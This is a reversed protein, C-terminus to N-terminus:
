LLEEEGLSDDGEQESTMYAGLSSFFIATGSCILLLTGNVLAPQLPFTLEAGFSLCLPFYGLFALGFLTMFGAFMRKNIADLNILVICSTIVVAATLLILRMMLKYKHTKDVIVGTSVAGVVGAILLQLGIFSIEGSTFGYPDFLNSMLIPISTCSGVPIAMAFALVLFNRNKKM